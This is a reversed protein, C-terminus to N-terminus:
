VPMSFLAPDCQKMSRRSDQATRLIWLDLFAHVFAQPTQGAKKRDIADEIGTPKWQRLLLFDVSEARMFGFTDIIM